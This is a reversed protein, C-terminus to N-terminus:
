SPRRAHAPWSLTPLLACAQLGALVAFFGRYVRLAQAPDAPVIADLVSGALLPGGGAALGTTVAALVLTRAPAEPPALEFVLHTDAVGFGAVLIALVFFWISTWGVGLAAAPALALLLLALSQGTTTARLQPVHDLM